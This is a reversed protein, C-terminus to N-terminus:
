DRRHLDYHAEYYSGGFLMLWTREMSFMHVSHEHTDKAINKYVEKPHQLIKEREVGMLAGYAFSGVEQIEEMVDTAGIRDLQDKILNTGQTLNHHKRYVNGLHTAGHDHFYLSDFTRLSFREPRFWPHRSTADIAERPTRIWENTTDAVYVRSMVQVSSLMGQNELLRMYHKNHVFPEAQSFVTYALSDYRLIIHQAYSDAERGHNELNVTSYNQIFGAGQLLFEPLPHEEGGKNLVVVDWTDPISSIWHLDESYRAIIIEFAPTHAAPLQEEAEESKSM